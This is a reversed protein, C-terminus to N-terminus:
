LRNLFGSLLRPGTPSADSEAPLSLRVLTTGRRWRHASRRPVLLQSDSRKTTGVFRAFESSLLGHLSPPAVLPVAPPFSPLFKSDPVMEVCCCRIAFCALSSGAPRRRRRTRPLGRQSDVFHLAPHPFDARGSGLPGRPSGPSGSWARLARRGRSVTGVTRVFNAHGFGGAARSLPGVTRVFNALGFGGTAAPPGSRAFLAPM